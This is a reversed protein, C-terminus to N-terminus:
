APAAPKAPAVWSPRRKEAFARAGEAAAPSNNVADRLPKSFDAVYETPVTRGERVVRKITRVADPSGLAIDSILQEVRVFLDARDTALQQILGIAHARTADMRNGSLQLHLAEGLPILRCLHDLGYEGTMGVRPEPLGLSSRVTALRIDCALALEFGGGVAYGDMAAIMPKRAALVAGFYDASRAQMGSIDVGGAFNGAIGKLDSGTSFAGCDSGTLVIARVADDGELREVAEVLLSKMDGDIANLVRPRNLTIYGGAGRIEVILKDPAPEAAAMASM